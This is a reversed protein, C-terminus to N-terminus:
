VASNFTPGQATRGHVAAGARRLSRALVESDRAASRLPGTRPNGSGESYRADVTANM